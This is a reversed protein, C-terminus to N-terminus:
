RISMLKAFQGKDAKIDWFIYHPGRKEIKYAIQHEDFFKRYRNNKIYQIRKAVVKESPESFRYMDWETGVAYLNEDTYPGIANYIIAFKESNVPKERSLRGWTRTHNTTVVMENDVVLQAQLATYFDTYIFRADKTKLFDIASKLYFPKKIPTFGNIMGSNKYFKYNNFGQFGAW